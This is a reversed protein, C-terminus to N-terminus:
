FNFGLNFSHITSVWIDDQPNTYAMRMKYNFYFHRVRFEPIFTIFQNSLSISSRFPLDKFKLWSGVYIGDFISYRKRMHIGAFPELWIKKADGKWQHFFHFLPFNDYSYQEKEKLTLLKAELMEIKWLRHDSERKWIFDMSLTEKSQSLDSFNFIKSSEALETKTKTLDADSRNLKYLNLKIHTDIHGNKTVITSLGMKTEKKVYVSVSPDLSSTQNYITFLSGLNLNYFLSPTLRYKSLNFSPLPVGLTADLDIYRESNMNKNLIELINLEKQSQSAGAENGKNKIDAVLDKVGSSVQLDLDIYQEYLNHTLRKNILTKDRLITYRKLNNRLSQAHASNALILLLIIIKKM